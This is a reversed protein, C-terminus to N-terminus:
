ERSFREDVEDLKLSIIQSATDRGMTIGYIVEAAQVTNRNHTILVFQTDKSLEKLLETFRGVNAEDLMADVEDMVCFPTPSAKLLSFVLATATLSREGGSLLALRQARKGPLRAEIDIGTQSIDEGEILLLRASGGNFLRSFIVRFEAAVQDFTARFEREMLIDLEAIVEKLDEQAAELDAVQTEMDEFRLKVSEFEQHAEPNVSGMRRLANRQEKLKQELAPDLQELIPLREVLEGLPLPTPGSVNEDYEFAVLGFDDEIRTRLTSLSEQQRALSIQAQTHTREASSLSGTALQESNQISQLQTEVNSLEIETPGIKTQIESIEKGSEGEVNGSQDKQAKIAIEQADLEDRRQVQAALQEEAKEIQTSYEQLRRDADQVSRQSVAVRMEWHAAQAHFEDFPLEADTVPLADLEQQLLHIKEKQQIEESQIVKQRATTEDVQRNLNRQQTKFWQQQNQLQEIELARARSKNRENEIETAASHIQHRLEIQSEELKSMSSEAQEIKKNTEKLSKETQLLSDRLEREQRPRSIANSHKSSRVEIHGAAHFVEGRLTVVRAQEPLTAQLRRATARDEVVLVQGLFLQAANQIEKNAEVLDSAVGVVGSENPATLAKSSSLQRLPLLTASAEQNEIWQLASEPDTGSDLFVAELYDGLAASIAVELKQPVKLSNGFTEQSLKLHNKKAADLLTKAGEAFGASSFEAEEHANIEASIRAKERLFNNLKQDLQKSELRLNQQAIENEELSSELGMLASENQSLSTAKSHLDEQFGDIQEQSDALLKKLNTQELYNQGLSQSLTKGEAGLILIEDKIGTIKEHFSAKLDTSDKQSALKANLRAKAATLKNQSEELEEQISAKDKKMEQHRVRLTALETELRQREEALALKQRALAEEREKAVALDRSSSERGAHLEALRRHWENLQTRLKLSKDRLKNLDNSLESQKQRALKLKEERANAENRQDRLDNQARHWQYGYWDRLTERLDARLESFEKARKSQRQLSRLRPKLEAMIDAVRDLNRQTADLRRTAQDKRTRYLGIGAAEEFLRRREDSKLTLATDVLGQGIVTYTREALASQSLLENVDRLRVKQQNILYENQGDRYARRTISVESFDIPLWGDSNDFTVTASAMGARARKESGAFIMDETKRGRLIGYAQEGLVWRISDAINSKGSGNPGVIATIEGSFEFSTPSAFTKYGNLELSKLRLSNV